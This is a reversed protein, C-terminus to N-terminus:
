TVANALEISKLIRSSVRSICDERKSSKSSRLSRVFQQFETPYESALKMSIPIAEIDSRTIYSAGGGKELAARFFSFQSTVYLSFLIRRSVRRSFPRILWVCDTCEVGDADVAVGFSMSCNRGVRKMLIDGKRIATPSEKYDKHRAAGIWRGCRFDTTHMASKAGNPSRRVGRIAEAAEGLSNWQLERIGTLRALGEHSEHYSFDFRCLGFSHGWSITIKEPHHLDHNCLLSTRHKTNKEYVFLYMRSEVGSFTRHPLEHVYHVAGNKLLAVRLWHMSESAIISSPLVSLIRGSPKLLSFAKLLFAAEISVFRSERSCVFENPLTRLVQSSKRGSFPPNMVICDFSSEASANWMLFDAEVANLRKGLVGLREAAIAMADPYKDICTLSGRSRLIRQLLPQILAGRGVAPELVDCLNKPAHRALVAAVSAPTEHIRM